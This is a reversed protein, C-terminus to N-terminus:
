FRIAGPDLGLALRGAAVYIVHNMAVHKAAAQVDRLARELPCSEFIASAGAEAVLGNVIAQATEAAHAAAARLM